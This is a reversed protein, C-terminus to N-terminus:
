TEPQYFPEAYRDEITFIGLETPYRTPFGHFDSGGSPLLQYKEALALYHATDEPNHQPYFAEIGDIGSRCIDEVIEDNWILKPHALVAM